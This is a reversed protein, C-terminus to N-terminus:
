GQKEIILTYKSTFYNEYVTQPLIAKCLRHAFRAVGFRNGYPFPFEKVIKLESFERVLCRSQEQTLLNIHGTHESYLSRDTLKFRLLLNTLLVVYKDFFPTDTTYIIRGGPRLVRIMERFVERVLPMSLHEVVFIFAITNFSNDAFPLSTGSACIPYLFPIKRKKLRELASRSVEVCYVPSEPGAVGASFVGDGGGLDLVTGLKGPFLDLYYTNAPFPDASLYHNKDKEYLDDWEPDNSFIPIGNHIPYCKGTSPNVLTQAEVQLCAQIDSPDRLAALFGVHNTEFEINKM